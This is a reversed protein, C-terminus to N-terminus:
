RKKIAKKIREREKYKKNMKNMKKKIIKARWLDNEKKEKCERM